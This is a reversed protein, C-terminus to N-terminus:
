NLTIWNLTSLYSASFFRSFHWIKAIHRLILGRQVWFFTFSVCLIGDPFALKQQERRAEWSSKESTLKTDFSILSKRTNRGPLIKSTCQNNTAQTSFLIFVSFSQLEIDEAYLFTDITKCHLDASERRHLPFMPRLRPLFFVHEFGVIFHSSGHTSSM